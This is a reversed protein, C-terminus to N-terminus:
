EEEAERRKNKILLYAIGGIVVVGVAAPAAVSLLIGTPITGTRDNTYAVTTDATLNTDSVSVVSGSAINTDDSTDTLDAGDNTTDGTVATSPTYDESEETVTYSVGKPLGNVVVNQNAQMYIVYGTNLTAGTVYYKNETTDLVAGNATVAMDSTEYKTASTATPAAEFDGSLYFKDTTELTTNSKITFKFYKDKSGQNGTVAKSVTLDVTEYRNVFGSSKKNTATTNIENTNFGIGTAAEATAYNTPAGTVVTDYLVYGTVELEGNTGTGKDQVYVDLTRADQTLNSYPATPTTETLKYRYVGPETFSCGSFDVAVTDTAYKYGSAYDGSLITISSTGGGTQNSVSVASTSATSTSTFDATGNSTSMKAGTVGQYLEVKDSTLHATSVDTDPTITYNFTIKPITANEDVVLYKNFTFEGGVVGTYTFPDAASAGFPMAVAMFATMALSAFGAVIRKTRKM